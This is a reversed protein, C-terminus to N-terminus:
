PALRGEPNLKMFVIKKQGDVVGGLTMTGIMAIHGGPLEVVPGALDNGVGGFVQEFLKNGRNDIKALYIDTGSSNVEETTVYHGNSPSASNFSDQFPVKGPTLNLFGTFSIDSSVFSLQQTLKVLYVRGDTANQSSGSLLYGLGSQAPTPSVYHLKEDSSAEGAFLPQSSIVGSFGLSFIIFNFNDGVSTNNNQNVNSYGMLYFTTANFQLIKVAVDEGAFGGKSRWNGSADNVWSLDSKFRMYMFDSVDSSAPLFNGTSGSIIYGDSIVSISHANEDTPLGGINNPSTTLGQKVTKITDGDQTMKLLYVDREGIAKEANALVLLNGDALLEIDKAEEDLSGGFTKEWMIKGRADAKAVYIQQNSSLTARSNGLLVFTGDPNVVFDVGEQNGENGFYKLFYNEDPPSFSSKSDCSLLLGLLIFFLFDVSQRM